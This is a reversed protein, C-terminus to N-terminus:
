DVATYGESIAYKILDINNNINLKRKINSIHNYVTMASISLITSIQKASNAASLLALIEQERVTLEAQIHM